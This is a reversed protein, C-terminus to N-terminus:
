AATNKVRRKFELRIFICGVNLYIRFKVILQHWDFNFLISCFEIPWTILDFDSNITCHDLKTAPPITLNSSFIWDMRRYFRYIREWKNPLILLNDVDSAYIQFKILNLYFLFFDFFHAFSCYLCLTCCTAWWQCELSQCGLQFNCIMAFSGCRGLWVSYRLSKVVDNKWPWNCAFYGSSQILSDLLLLFFLELVEFFSELTLLSM